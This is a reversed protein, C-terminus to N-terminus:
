ILAPSESRITSSFSAASADSETIESRVAFLIRACGSTLDTERITHPM